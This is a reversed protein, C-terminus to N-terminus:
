ENLEDQEFEPGEGKRFAMLQRLTYSVQDSATASDSGAERVILEVLTLGPFETRSTKLELAWTETSFDRLEALSIFGAELEVLKTRALDVAEHQRRTRDLTNFVSRVAGLTFAAAGGFLAVALMVEFLVGGRPRSRSRLMASPLKM